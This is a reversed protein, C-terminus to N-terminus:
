LTKVHMQTASLFWGIGGEIDRACPPEGCGALIASKRPRNNIKNAHLLGPGCDIAQVPCDDIAQV